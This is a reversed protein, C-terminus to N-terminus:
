VEEPIEYGKRYPAKILANAADNDFTGTKADYNLAVNGVRHAINGMHMTCCTDNALAMDANPAKRSKVCELFNTYHPEDCPRGFCKEVVRGGSQM